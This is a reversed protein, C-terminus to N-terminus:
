SLQTSPQLSSRCTGQCYKGTHRRPSTHCSLSRWMYPCGLQECAPQKMESAIRLLQKVLLGGLSHAVFVLPRTGVDNSVLLDIISKARDPLALAGSASGWNIADAPYGLSWIKTGQVDEFIWIPWFTSADGDVQWTTKPDGGLGHVFVIDAIAERETLGVPELRLGGLLGGGSNNGNGRARVVRIWSAAFVLKRQTAAFRM